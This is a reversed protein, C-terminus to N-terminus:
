LVIIHEFIFNIFPYTYKIYFSVIILIFSYLFWFISFVKKVGKKKLNKNLLYFFFFFILILDICFLFRIKNEIGNLLMLSLIMCITAIFIFLINFLYIWKYSKKKVKKYKM